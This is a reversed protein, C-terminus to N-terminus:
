VVDAFAKKTKTFVWYGLLAMLTGTLYSQFLGSMSPMQGWLLVGRSGEIVPSLPNLMILHRYEAPIASVPFFVPSLFMVFQILLNVLQQMDRLFVGLAALLWALGALFMVFPALIVPLLLITFTLEGSVLLRGLLLIGISILMHVCAAGLVSLPLIELPFVVKKVYNANSTILSPSRGVVEAFLNFPIMGCFLTLAFEAMGGNGGAGWRSKFIIGFVFTYALLMFLPNLFSWAFGMLSGRYRGVVERKILQGLLFQHKLLNSYM